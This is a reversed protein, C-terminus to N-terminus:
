LFVRIKDKSLIEACGEGQIKSLGRLYLLNSIILNSKWWNKSIAWEALYDTWEWTINWSGDDLQTKIIFDCEFDALEKNNVYFISDKSNFFQSPKCIYATEWESTNKTISYVVQKILKDKLANMDLIDDAEAEEVYQMLRIYCQVTHMNNLYDQNMYSDVAEKAIRCALSYLKSDKDAYRIIFGALCATPNYDDHLKTSKSNWWPAHPFNDNSKIINHWFQGNFDDTNELYSLIKKVMPHSKETFNIERLIETAFCTQVPSSNPNWADPELAHGFGGDENQYYSLAKLVAEKSGDEFHYQWRALDLSRSNRYIFEGAKQFVHHM